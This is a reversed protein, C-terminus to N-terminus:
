AFALYMRSSRRAIIQSTKRAIRRIYTSLKYNALVLKCLVTVMYTHFHRNRHAQVYSKFYKLAFLGLILSIRYLMSVVVKVGLEWCRANCARRDDECDSWLKVLSLRNM